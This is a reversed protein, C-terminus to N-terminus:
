AKSSEKPPSVAPKPTLAAPTRAGLCWHLVCSLCLLSLQVCGGMNCIARSDCYKDLLTYLLLSILWVAVGVITLVFSINILTPNNMCFATITFLALFLTLLSSVFTIVDWGRIGFCAKMTLYFAIGGIAGNVVFFIRLYTEVTKGGM